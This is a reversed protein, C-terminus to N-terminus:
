EFVSSTGVWFERVRRVRAQPRLRALGLWITFRLTDRPRRSLSFLPAITALGVGDRFRPNLIALVAWMRDCTIKAAPLSNDHAPTRQRTGRM